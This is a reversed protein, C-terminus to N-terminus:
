SNTLKSNRRRIWEYYEDNDFIKINDEFVTFRDKLIKFKNLNLDQYVILNASSILRLSILVSDFSSLDIENIDCGSVRNSLDHNNLLIDM